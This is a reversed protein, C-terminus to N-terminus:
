PTVHGMSPPTMFWRTIAIKNKWHYRVFRLTLSGSPLSRGGSCRKWNKIWLRAPFSRIERGRGRLWRISRDRSCVIRELGRGCVRETTPLSARDFATRWNRHRSNGENGANCSSLNRLQHFTGRPFCDGGHLQKGFVWSFLRKILKM